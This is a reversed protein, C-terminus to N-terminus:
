GGGEVVVEPSSGTSTARTYRPRAYTELGLVQCTLRELGIALGGHPMGFDFMRLHTEFGATDMGRARLAAEAQHLKVRERIAAHEREGKARAMALMQDSIDIGVIDFGAKAIPWLVRGTGTAVELVPGGFERVCEIYFEVDGKVPRNVSADGSFLDYFRVGLRSHYYANSDM